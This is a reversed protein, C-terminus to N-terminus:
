HLSRLYIVKFIGAALIPHLDDNLLPINREIKEICDKVSRANAVKRFIGTTDPGKM